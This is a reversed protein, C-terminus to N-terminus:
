YISILNYLPPTYVLGWGVKWDLKKIGETKFGRLLVHGEGAYRMPIDPFLSSLERIPHRSFELAEIINHQPLDLTLIVTISVVTDM